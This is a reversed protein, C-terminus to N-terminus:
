LDSTRRATAYDRNSVCAGSRGALELQYTIDGDSGDDAVYRSSALCILARKLIPCIQQEPNFADELQQPLEEVMTAALVELDLDVGRPFLALIDIIDGRNVEFSFWDKDDSVVGGISTLSSITAAQDERNNPEFADEGCQLVADAECLNTEAICRTNEPCDRDSNTFSFHCHM